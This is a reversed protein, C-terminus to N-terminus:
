PIVKLTTQSFGSVVGKMPQSVQAVTQRLPRVGSAVAGQQRAISAPLGTQVFGDASTGPQSLNMQVYLRDSSFAVDMARLLAGPNEPRSPMRDNVMEQRLDGGGSVRIELAGGRVEEPVVLSPEVWQEKGSPNKLRVLLRVREGPKVRTRDPKAEMITWTSEKEFSAMNLELGTIEVQKPFARSLQILPFIQEFLAEMRQGDPGSYLGDLVMPPLGKLRVSGSIRLTFDESVDQEDMLCNRMLLAVLMPTLLPHAAMGGSLDPRPEDNHKRKIQYPVMAPPDLFTGSIASLRDQTMTGVPGGANALKHPMYYSPITTIIEAGAVPLRTTGLGMMPHGFAMFRKGDTWTLTGTGAISLDGDALLVALPSGNELPLKKGTGGGGSSSAVPVFGPIADFIPGLIRATEGGWGRVPVPIALLQGFAPFASAFGMDKWDSRSLWRGSEWPVPAETGKRREVDFMDSAPTFGCHGDKEFISIRRSLAGVLKGEIYLPSGSMGHVAGTKETRPDILRGIILDRGPGLASKQVGLIETKIDEIKTGQLVTRTIGQMGPELRELPFVPVPQADLMGAGLLLLVCAWGPPRFGHRSIM